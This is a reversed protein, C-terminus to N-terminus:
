IRFLPELENFKNNLASYHLLIKWFRVTAWRPLFRVLKLPDGLSMVLFVLHQWHFNTQAMQIGDVCGYWIAMLEAICEGLGIYIIQKNMKLMNPGLYFRGAVPPRYLEYAPSVFTHKQIVPGDDYLLLQVTSNLSYLFLCIKFYKGLKIRSSWLGSKFHDDYKSKQYVLENSCVSINSFLEFFFIM